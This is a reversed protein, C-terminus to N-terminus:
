NEESQIPFSILISTTSDETQYSMIIKKTNNYYKIDSHYIPIFLM